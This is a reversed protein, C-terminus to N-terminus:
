TAATKLDQAYDRAWAALALLELLTEAVEPVREKKVLNALSMQLWICCVFDPLACIEHEALASERTYLYLFRELPEWELLGPYVLHEFHGPDPSAFFIVAEAVEVVRPQWSSKDYDVVGVIGDGDFLLNDAYYDGHIVLHPMPRHVSFRVTLQELYTDLARAQSLLGDDDELRWTKVLSGLLNRALAPSYREDFSRLAALELGEVARHYRSLTRAAEDLHNPNGFDYPEGAIYEQIEYIEGNLDLISDGATTFHVAPTPFGRLRLWQMLDRQARVIDPQRQEAHHRKLFFRGLSTSVDWSDNVFGKEIRYADILDGIAYHRLVAVLEDDDITTTL